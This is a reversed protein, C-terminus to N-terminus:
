GGNERGRWKRPITLGFIMRREPACMEQKETGTRVEKASVSKLVPWVFNVELKTDCQRDDKRGGLHRM